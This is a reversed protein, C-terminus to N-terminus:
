STSALAQVAATVHAPGGCRLFEDLNPLAIWLYRLRELAADDTGRRRVSSCSTRVGRCRESDRDALVPWIPLRPQSIAYRWRELM